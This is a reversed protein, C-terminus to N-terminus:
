DFLCCFIEIIRLIGFDLYTCIKERAEANNAIKCNKVSYFSCFMDPVLAAVQRCFSSASKGENTPSFDVKVLAFPPCFM